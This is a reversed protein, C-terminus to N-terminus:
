ILSFLNEFCNLWYRAIIWTMHFRKRIIGTIGILTNIKWCRIEEFGYTILHVASLPSLCKSNPTYFISCRFLKLFNQCRHEQLNCRIEAWFRNDLVNIKDFDCYYCFDRHSYYFLIYYIYNKKKLKITSVNLQVYYGNRNTCNNCFPRRIIIKLDISRLLNVSPIWSSIVLFSFVITYKVNFRFLIRPSRNLDVLICTVSICICPPSVVFSQATNVNNENIFMAFLRNTKNKNRPKWLILETPVLQRRNSFCLLIKHAGGVNAILEFTM